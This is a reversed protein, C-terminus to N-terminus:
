LDEGDDDEIERWADCHMCEFWVDLGALEAPHKERFEDPGGSADSREDLAFMEELADTSEYNWHHEGDPPADAFEPDPACVSCPSPCVIPGGRKLARESVPGTLEPHKSLDHKHEGTLESFPVRGDSAPYGRCAFRPDAKSARLSKACADCLVVTAGDAPLDCVICGWGKGPVPAKKNVCGINRVGELTECNCCAGLTPEDNM